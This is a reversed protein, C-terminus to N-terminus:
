EHSAGKEDILNIESTLDEDYTAGEEAILALLTKDNIFLVSEELATMHFMQRVNTSMGSMLVAGGKAELEKEFFDHLTAIASTELLTVDRLDIICTRGRVANKLSEVFGLQLLGESDVRGSLFILTTERMVYSKCSIELTSKGSSLTSLTDGSHRDSVLDMIRCASLQHKVAGSMGLLSIHNDPDNLYESLRVFEYLGSFQIHKVASFDLIRMATESNNELSSILRQLYDATVQTPLHLVALSQQRSSWVSQWIVESQFQNSTQRYFLIEKLRYYLLPAVLIGLKFFGKIYRKWLRVPDQSIRFLWEMNLAQVWDPARKVVGNIFDFTGGVGISVPVNLKQKNRNFWLEQKPNGLGILLIEAGSQNIQHILEEDSEGCGVLDNGEIHIYPAATGAIILAPYAIMLTNAAASASGEAGGLLFISLSNEAAKSALAPVLDAGTVRAKLPVGMLKSLWVIPFGDATVMDSRRLINLLEPHRPRSFFGLANVLFDVNLTSVFHSRGDGSKAMAVIREVAQQFSVNDVPIGLSNVCERGMPHIISKM